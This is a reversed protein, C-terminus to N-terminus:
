KIATACCDNTEWVTVKEVSTRENDLNQSLTELIMGALHESSPSNESFVDLDNLVTHDYKAISDKLSSQLKCFDIVMGAKDLELASVTVEIRWNHGHLNECPGKFDTLRHAASFSDQVTIEYKM